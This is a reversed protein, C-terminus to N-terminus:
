SLRCTSARATSSTTTVRGATVARDPGEAPAATGAAAHEVVGPLEVLLMRVGSRACAETRGPNLLTVRQLRDPLPQRWLCLCLCLCPCPCPGHGPRGSGDGGPM